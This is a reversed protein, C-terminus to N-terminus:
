GPLAHPSTRVFKPDNPDQMAGQGVFGVVVVVVTGGETFHQSPVSPHM